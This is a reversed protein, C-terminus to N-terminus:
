KGAERDPELAPSAADLDRYLGRAEPAPGRRTGLARVRLVHVRGALAFSLGDGIRVPTAPKVVRASNLRVAGSEVLAAARSRSKAFRAQWLWKDLRISGSPAEEDHDPPPPSM